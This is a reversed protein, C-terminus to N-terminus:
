INKQLFVFHLDDRMPLGFKEDGYPFRKTEGTRVYGRREYWAILTDRIHVVGLVVFKAGRSACDAEAFQLIRRGLGSAQLGPQVTLMGLYNGRIGQRTVDELAVCGILKHAGDFAGYIQHGPKAIELRLQEPDTRQGGLFDAETTWGARSSDGRYASNVLDALAECDEPAIIRIELSDHAAASM